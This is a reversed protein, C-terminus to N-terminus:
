VVLFGSSQCAASNWILFKNKADRSPNQGGLCNWSFWIMKSGVMIQIGVKVILEPKCLIGHHRCVETSKPQVCGKSYVKRGECKTYYTSSALTKAWLKDLSAALVGFALKFLCTVEPSPPRKNVSFLVSWGMQLSFFFAM